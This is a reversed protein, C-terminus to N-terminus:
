VLTQKVSNYNELDDFYGELYIHVSYNAVEYCQNQYELWVHNLPPERDEKRNKLIEYQSSSMASGICVRYGHCGSRSFVAWLVAATGACDGRLRVPFRQQLHESNCTIIARRVAEVTKKPDRLVEEIDKVYEDPLYKFADRYIRETESVYNVGRNENMFRVNM